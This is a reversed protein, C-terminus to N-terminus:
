AQTSTELNHVQMTRSALSEIASLFDKVEDGSTFYHGHHLGEDAMNKHHTAYGSTTRSLVIQAPATFEDGPAIPSHILPTM